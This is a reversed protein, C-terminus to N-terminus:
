TATTTEALKTLEAAEASGMCAGRRRPVARVVRRRTGRGGCRPRRRAEPVHRPGPVREGHVRARPQLDRRLGRRRALRRRGRAGARGARADDRRARDDGPQRGHRRQLGRGIAECVADVSRWDPRARADVYLPPVAIVLEPGAAVAATTDTTARLRGGGVVGRWRRTSGRRAPFRRAGRTSRTSRRRASTAASSTTARAAIHTALPLGM